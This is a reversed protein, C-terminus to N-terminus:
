KKATEIIFFGTQDLKQKVDVAAVSSTLVTGGSLSPTISGVYGLHNLVSASATITIQEPTAASIVAPSMAEFNINLPM